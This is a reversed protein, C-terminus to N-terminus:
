KYTRRDVLQNAGLPPAGSCPIEWGEQPTEFGISMHLDHLEKGPTKYLFCVEKPDHFHGAKIHFFPKLYFLSLCSSNNPTLTKAPHWHIAEQNCAM